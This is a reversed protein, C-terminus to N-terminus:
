RKTISEIFNIIKKNSIAGTRLIGGTRADVYTSPKVRKLNGCDLIMDVKGGFCEIVRKSNYIPPQNSINASTATIPSGVLKVLRNAIPHSSIRFAIFKPNLINPITNKKEVVITLPGPMFKKVLERSLKTIKGYKEMMALSSVIIPLPKTSFRKKVSYVRKVADKNTADVAIGYCTETPYVVVRGAKIIKAAKTVNENIRKASVKEITTKM